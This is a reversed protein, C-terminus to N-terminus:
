RLNAGTAVPRSEFEADTNATDPKEAPGLKRRLLKEYLAETNHLQAAISFRDAVVQKGAEGMRTALESSELLSIIRAAMLEDDGSGVLYGTEGDVIAESAGGVDTAVVPRGAAMYELISNSFGEAKSTLVGVESVSLLTAIDAVRGLFLTKNALGLTAALSELSSKLEGEGALLFGVNPIANSVRQATRLFMPYDKVEHRMNAVITVFRQSSYKELGIAALAQDRSLSKNSVVRNPDFGNHIIAIKTKRVGEAILTQRVAESNGIIQHALAYAVRQTQQQTLSRMGNTERRSAIRVPVGAIFGAVMGFINTYFDHTHLADIKLKRLDRVFRRLQHLANLDYFSTLPYCPIEGLDLDAIQSRLIGDSKLCALLVQYRGSNQLLRTLQLAQRESGGEDFSDVLQLIRPKM